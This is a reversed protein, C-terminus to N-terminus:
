IVQLVDCSWDRKVGGCSDISEWAVSRGGGCFVVSFCRFVVMLVEGVVKVVM